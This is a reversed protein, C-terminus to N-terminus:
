RNLFFVWFVKVHENICKKREKKQWLNKRLLHVHKKDMRELIAVSKAHLILTYSICMSYIFM